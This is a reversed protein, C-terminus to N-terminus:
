EVAEKEVWTNESEIQKFRLEFRTGSKSSNWSLDGNLQDALSTILTFGLSGHKEPEFGEPMGCGNDEVYLLIDKDQISLGLKLEGENKDKFAHKLANSIIENSLIAFPIDMSNGRIYKIADIGTGERLHYDSLIIDYERGSEILNRFETISDCTEHAVKYNKTRLIALTAALDFNSDELVLVKLDKM